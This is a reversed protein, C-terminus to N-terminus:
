KFGTPPAIHNAKISDLLGSVTPKPNPVMGQERGYIPAMERDIRRTERDELRSIFDRVQQVAGMYGPLENTRQRITEKVATIESGLRDVELQNGPTQLRKNELHYLDVLDCFAKSETSGITKKEIWKKVEGDVEMGPAETPISGYTQSMDKGTDNM